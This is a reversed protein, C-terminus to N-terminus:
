IDRNFFNYLNRFAVKYLGLFGHLIGDEDEAHWILLLCGCYAVGFFNPLMTSECETFILLVPAFAVLALAILVLRVFFRLITKM